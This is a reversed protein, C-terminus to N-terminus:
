ANPNVPLGGGLYKFWDQTVGSISEEDWVPADSWQQINELMIEVGKELSITPQWRLLDRIKQTDAFTCDPEGPRKPIYEM